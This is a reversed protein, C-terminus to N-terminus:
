SSIIWDELVCRGLNMTDGAPMIEFCCSRSTAQRKPLVRPAKDHCVKATLIIDKASSSAYWKIRGDSERQGTFYKPYSVYM